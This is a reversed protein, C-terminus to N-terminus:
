SDLAPSESRKLIASNIIREAEECVVRVRNHLVGVISINTPDHSVTSGSSDVPIRVHQRYIELQSRVSGMKSHATLHRLLKAETRPHPVCTSDKYEPYDNSDNTNPYSVEIIQFLLLIKAAIPLHQLLALDWLRLQLALDPNSQWDQRGVGAPLMKIGRTRGERTDSAMHRGDNYEKNVLTPKMQEGTLFSIRDCERQVMNNVQDDLLEQELNVVLLHQEGEDEFSFSEPFVNPLAKAVRNDIKHIRFSYKM